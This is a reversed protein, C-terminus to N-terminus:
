AWPRGAASITLAQLTQKNLRRIESIHFDKKMPVARWIKGIERVQAEGFHFM